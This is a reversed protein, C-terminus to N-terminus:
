TLNPAAGIRPETSKRSVFATLAEVSGLNRELVEEDAIAINFEAQVFEILELIGMSDIIGRKLLGDGDSFVVDPSAYLFAERIFVRLRPAVDSAHLM